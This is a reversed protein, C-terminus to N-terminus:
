DNDSMQNLRNQLGDVLEVAEKRFNELQKAPVELVMSDIYKTIDGKGYLYEIGVNFLGPLEKSWEQLYAVANKRSMLGLEGNVVKELFDNTQQTIEERRRIYENFIPEVFSVTEFDLGIQFLQEKLQDLTTIDRYWCFQRIKTENMQFKLTHIKIYEVAKIKSLLM